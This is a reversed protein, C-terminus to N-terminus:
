IKTYPLLSMFRARKIAQALMRQHRACNGSFRSSFIKGRETIFRELRKTDKYDITKVGDRCFRCTKKHYILTGEPRRASGPAKRKNLTDNKLTTM